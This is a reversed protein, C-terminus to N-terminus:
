KLQSAMEELIHEVTDIDAFTNEEELDATAPYYLELPKIEDSYVNLRMEGFDYWGIEYYKREEMDEVGVLSKKGFFPIEFGFLERHVMGYGQYLEGEDTAEDFIERFEERPIEQDWVASYTLEEGTVGVDVEFHPEQRIERNIWNDM